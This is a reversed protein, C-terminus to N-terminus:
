KSMARESRIWCRQDLRDFRDQSLNNLIIELPTWVKARLPCDCAQCVKLDTDRSTALNLDNLASFIAMIEKAAAGTFREFITAKQDNMPCDACINARTEALERSAPKGNGFWEIWLKIGAATNSLWKVAAVAGSVGAPRATGSLPPPFSIPGTEACWAPDNKLRACTYNDLAQAVTEYDTPLKYQRNRQRHTIIAKVVQDFTLGEPARWGTAPELFVWGKPPWTTRSKLM